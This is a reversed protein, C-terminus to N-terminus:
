LSLSEMTLYSRWEGYLAALSIFLLISMFSFLDVMMSHTNHRARRKIRRRRRVVVAAAVM